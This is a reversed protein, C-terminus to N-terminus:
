FRIAPRVSRRDDLFGVLAVAGGGVAVAMTLDASVFGTLTLAVLGVTASIVVSLGGGRATTRNHSSRSNPIDVLGTALARRRVVGTLLASVVFVLAGLAIIKLELTRLTTSTLSQACRFCLWQAADAM